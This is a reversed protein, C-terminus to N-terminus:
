NKSTKSEEQMPKSKQKRNSPVVKSHYITFLEKEICFDFMILINTLM